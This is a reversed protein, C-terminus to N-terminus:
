TGRKGRVRRNERLRDAINPCTEFGGMADRLRILEVMQVRMTMLKQCAEAIDRLASTSRLGVGTAHSLEIENLVAVDVEKLLGEPFALFPALNLVTRAGAARAVALIEKTEALPTEFQAVWVEEPRAAERIMDRSFHLNAGSAM